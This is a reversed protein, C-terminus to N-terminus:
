AVEGSLDRHHFLDISSALDQIEISMEHWKGGLFWADSFNISSMPPAYWGQSAAPGMTHEKAVSASNM